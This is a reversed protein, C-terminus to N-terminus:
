TRTRHTFKSGVVVVAYRMCVSIAFWVYQIIYTSKIDSHKYYVSYLRKVWKVSVGFKCQKYFYACLGILKTEKTTNHHSSHSHIHYHSHHLDGEM